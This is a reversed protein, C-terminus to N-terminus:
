LDKLELADLNLEIVNHCDHFYIYPQTPINDIGDVIGPTKLGCKPKKLFIRHSIIAIGSLCVGGIVDIIFHHKSYIAAWWIWLLYITWVTRKWFHRKNLTFYCAIVPWAAHLSPYSGYIITSKSYLNTFFTNGFYQDLIVFIAPNGVMQTVVHETTNDPLPVDYWWPPATPFLWQISIGLINVVGFTWFFACVRWRLATKCGGTKFYTELSIVIGFIFPVLFHLTYPIAALLVIWPNNYSFIHNVFHYYGLTIYYDCTPLFTTNVSDRDFTVLIPWLSTCIIWIFIPIFYTLTELERM